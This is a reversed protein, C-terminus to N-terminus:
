VQNAPQKLVNCKLYNLYGCGKYVLCVFCDATSELVACKIERTISTWFKLVMVKWKPITLSLFDGMSNLFIDLLVSSM